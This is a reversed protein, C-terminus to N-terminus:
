AGVGALATDALEAEAAIYAFAYRAQTDLVQRFVDHAEDRRGNYLLWNGVGYLQTANVLSRSSDVGIIQEPTREGAYLRMRETYGPDSEDVETLRRFRELVDDAEDTRGLRRLAMYLWDLSAVWGEAHHSEQFSREFVELCEEVDGRLYLAVGLHYWVAARFTTSYISEAGDAASMPLFQARVEEDRDLLLSTVDKEVEHQYLEYGDEISELGQVARRFDDVAGDFDRISIRRHGRFRRLRVDDPHKEIAETLLAVSEDHEDLYGKLRAAIIYRDIESPVPM